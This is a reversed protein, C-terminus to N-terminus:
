QGAAAGTRGNLPDKPTPAKLEPGGPMGPRPTQGGQNAAPPGPAAGVNPDGPEGGANCGAVVYLSLIAAFFTCNKMSFKMENMKVCEEECM